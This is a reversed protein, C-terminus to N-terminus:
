IPMWALHPNKELEKSWDLQELEIYKPVSYPLHQLRQSAVMVTAERRAEQSCNLARKFSKSAHSDKDMAVLGAGQFVVWGLAVLQLKKIM